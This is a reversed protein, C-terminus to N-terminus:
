TMDTRSMELYKGEEDYRSTYTQSINVSSFIMEDEAVQNEELYQRVLEADKKIIAYADRAYRRPCFAAEGCM